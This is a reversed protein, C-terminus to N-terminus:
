FIEFVCVKHSSLIHFRYWKDISTKLIPYRKLWFHYIFPYPTPSRIKKLLGEGGAWARVIFRKLAVFYVNM